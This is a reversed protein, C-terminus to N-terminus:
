ERLKLELESGIMSGQKRPLLEDIFSGDVVNPGKEIDAITQMEWISVSHSEAFERDGHFM